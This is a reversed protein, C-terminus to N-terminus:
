ADVTRNLLGPSSKPDRARNLPDLTRNIIGPSPEFGMLLDPSIRCGCIEWLILNRPNPGQGPTAVLCYALPLLCSATYCLHIHVCITSLHIM